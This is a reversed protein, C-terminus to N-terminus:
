KKKLDRFWEDNDELDRLAQKVVKLRKVDVSHQQDYAKAFDSLAHMFRNFRNVFEREHIAQAIRRAAAAGVSDPGKASRLMAEREAADDRVADLNRQSVGAPFIGSRGPEQFCFLVWLMWPM